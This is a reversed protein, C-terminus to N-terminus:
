RVLELLQANTASVVRVNIRKQERGGVPYCSGEQLVRLLKVQMPLPREGIENLFLTGGDAM